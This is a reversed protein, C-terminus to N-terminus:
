PQTIPQRHKSNFNNILILYHSTWVRRGQSDIEIQQIGQDMRCLKMRFTGADIESLNDINNEIELMKDKLFSYDGRGQVLMGRSNSAYENMYPERVGSEKFLAVANDPEDPLESLFLNGGQVIPQGPGGGFILSTNNPIYTEAFWEVVM